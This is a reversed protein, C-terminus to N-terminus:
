CRVNAATCPPALRCSAGGHVLVNALNACLDGFQPVAPARRGDPIRPHDAALDRRERPPWLGALASTVVIARLTPTAGQVSASQSRFGDHGIIRATSTTGSEGRYLSAVPEAGTSM